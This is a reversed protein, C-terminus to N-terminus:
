LSYIDIEYKDILAQEADTLPVANEVKRRIVAIQKQRVVSNDREKSLCKVSLRVRIPDLATGSGPRTENAQCYWRLAESEDCAKIKAPKLHAYTADGEKLVPRVEFEYGEPGAFAKENPSYRLGGSSAIADAEERLRQNEEAAARNESVLKENAKELADLRALMAAPSFAGDAAPINDLVSDSDAQNAKAM